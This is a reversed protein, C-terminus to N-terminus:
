RGKMPDRPRRAEPQGGLPRGNAEEGCDEVAELHAQLLELDQADELAVPLAGLAEVTGALLADDLLALEVAAQREQLRGVEGGLDDVAGADGQLDVEGRAVEEEM